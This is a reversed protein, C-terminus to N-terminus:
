GIDESHQPPATPDVGALFGTAQAEIRVAGIAGAWRAVETALARAGAEDGTDRAQSIVRVCSVASRRRTRTRSM